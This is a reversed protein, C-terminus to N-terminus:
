QQMWYDLLRGTCHTNQAGLMLQSSALPLDHSIARYCNQLCQQETCQSGHTHPTMAQSKYDRIGAEQESSSPGVGVM